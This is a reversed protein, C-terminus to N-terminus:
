STEGTELDGHSRIDRSWAKGKRLLLLSDFHHFTATSPQHVTGIMAVVVVMMMMMTMMMMVVMMMVM